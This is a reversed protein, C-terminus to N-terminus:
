FNYMENPAPLALGMPILGRFDFHHANLFDFCEISIHIDEYWLKMVTTSSLGDDIIIELCEQTVNVKLFDEVGYLSVFEIAEEDTMTSMPRLYPKVDVWHSPEICFELNTACLLTTTTKLKDDNSIDYYRVYIKVGYPLRACLDKLLLQKEENTM